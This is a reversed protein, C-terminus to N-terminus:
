FWGSVRQVEPQIQGAFPDSFPYLYSRHRCEGGPTKHNSIITQLTTFFEEGGFAKKEHSTVEARGPTGKALVAFGSAAPTKAFSM